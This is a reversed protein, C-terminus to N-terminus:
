AMLRELYPVLNEEVIRRWSCDQISAAVTEPDSLPLIEVMRHLGARVGEATDEILVGTKEDLVARNADCDTAVCLLGAGLYEYVKTSPQFEYWPQRPTFAIGVDHDALVLAVRDHDIRDGIEVVGGLDLRDVTRRLKKTEEDSGFGIITYRVALGPEDDLFARVGAITRELNRNKFTGIYILRLLGAQRTTLKVARDAGLPLVHARGPLRLRGALGASIVTIHRFFRANFRILADEVARAFADAEISGSRIDYVMPVRPRCLRLVFSFKTRRLFVLDFDRTRLLEVTDLLLGLEVKGLPRRNCYVVEVGSLAKRPLGQDLCLYTLRYRSRLHECYKLTDTHVGFQLCSVLLVSKKGHDPSPRTVNM